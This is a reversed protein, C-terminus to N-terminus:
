VGMFETGQNRGPRQCFLHARGDVLSPPQHLWRRDGAGGPANSFDYTWIAPAMGGRYSKFLLAEVSTRCFAVKDGADNFGSSEAEPLELVTPLGGQVPVAHLRNFRYSFSSGNSRFIISKGDPHWDVVYEAAPHFTLRKAKGGHVSM